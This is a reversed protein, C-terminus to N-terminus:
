GEVVFRVTTLSVKTWLLLIRCTQFCGFRTMNTNMPYSENLVRLHTPMHYPNLISFVSLGSPTTVNRNLKVSVSGYGSGNGM